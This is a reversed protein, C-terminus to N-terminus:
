CLVSEAVTVLNVEDLMAVYGFYTKLCNYRSRVDTYQQGKPQKPLLRRLEVAYRRLDLLGSYLEDEEELIKNLREQAYRVILSCATDLDKFAKKQERESENAAPIRPKLRSLDALLRIRLRSGVIPLIQEQRYNRAQDVTPNM